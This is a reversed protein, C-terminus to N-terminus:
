LTTIKGTFKSKAWIFLAEGYTGVASNGKVGVILIEDNTTADENIEEKGSESNTVYEIDATTWIEGQSLYGSCQGSFVLWDVAPYFYVTSHTGASATVADHAAVGLVTKDGSVGTMHKIYGVTGYIASNRKIITNSASLGEWIPMANGALPTEPLFGHSRKTNAM